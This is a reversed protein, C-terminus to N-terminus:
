IFQREDSTYANSLMSSLHKYFFDIFLIHIVKVSTIKCNWDNFQLGIGAITIDHCCHKILICVQGDPFRRLATDCCLYLGQGNRWYVWVLIVLIESCWESRQEPVRYENMLAPLETSPSSTEAVITIAMTTCVPNHREQVKLNNLLNALWQSSRLCFLLFL